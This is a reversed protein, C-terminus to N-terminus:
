LLENPRSRPRLNVGEKCCGVLRAPNTPTGMRQQERHLVAAGPYGLDGREFTRLDDTPRRRQKREMALTAIVPRDRQPRVRTLDELPPQSCSALGLTRHCEGIRPSSRQRAMADIIEHGLRNLIGRWTTGTEERPGNGRMKKAVCCGGMQQLCPNIHRGDSEPEAMFAYFRGM